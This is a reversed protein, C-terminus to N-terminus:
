RMSVPSVTQLFTLAAGSFSTVMLTTTDVSVGSDLEDGHGSSRRHMVAPTRGARNPRMTASIGCAEAFIAQTSVFARQAVFFFAL